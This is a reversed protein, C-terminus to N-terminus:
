RLQRRDLHDAWVSPVRSTHVKKRDSKTSSTKSSAPNTKKTSAHQKKVGVPPSSAGRGFGGSMGYDDVDIPMALARSDPSEPADVDM